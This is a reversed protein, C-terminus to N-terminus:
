PLTGSGMDNYSKELSPQWWLYMQWLADCIGLQSLSKRRDPGTRPPPAKAPFEGERGEHL